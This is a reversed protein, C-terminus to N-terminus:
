LPLVTLLNRDALFKNLVSVFNGSLPGATAEIGICPPRLKRWTFFPPIKILNYILVKGM